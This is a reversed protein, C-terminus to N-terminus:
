STGTLGSAGGQSPNLPYLSVNTDYVQGTVKLLNNAVANCAQCGLKIEAIVEASTRAPSTVVRNGSTISTKWDNYYANLAKNRRQETLRSADRNATGM